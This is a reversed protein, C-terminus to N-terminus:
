RGFDIERGPREPAHTHARPAEVPRAQARTHAVAERGLTAPPKRELSVPAPRKPGDREGVRTNRASGQTREAEDEGRGKGTLWRGLKAFLGEKRGPDNCEDLATRRVPRAGTNELTRAQAELRDRRMQAPPHNPTVVRGHTDLSHEFYKAGGDLPLAARHLIHLAGTDAEREMAKSMEPAVAGRALKARILMGFINGANAKGLTERARAEGLTEVVRASLKRNSHQAVGHAMEHAVVFAATAVGKPHNVDEEAIRVVQAGSTYSKGGAATTRTAVQVDWDDRRGVPLGPRLADVICDLKRQTEARAADPPRTAKDSLDLASLEAVSRMAGRPVLAPYQEDDFWRQPM